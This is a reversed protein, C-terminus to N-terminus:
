NEGGANKLIRNIANQIIDRGHILKFKDLIKLADKLYKLANDLDGRASYILGINGLDSAEGQKYGIEQDLKLADQHYKLANDLDGRASFILGINGLQDAEGQKHGIEKLTRLAGQHYKLANDLDGRARYVLGINGLQIAEGQKYGIEKHINLAGQYYKLANDLDGKDYYILGFNGLDSAEGQKYGIEKHINLADQYYKLANDLDGRARYIVGINGLDASEGQKYGIEKHINLAGQYYKLANDLDGRTKYILGINCLQDAEGQKYGIEKHINLAGQYYKLANGLDGRARYILGINGLDSAEGQKYGIEQNIKLGDQHYKLANDLDGKDAYILGINGLASAKGELAEKKSVKKTLELIANYNELAIEIQGLSYYANGLNLLVAMKETPSLICGRLIDEFKQIAHSYKEDWVFLLAEMTRKKLEEDDSKPIGDLWYRAGTPRVNLQKAAVYLYGDTAISNLKQVEDLKSDFCVTVTEQDRWGPKEISLQENIYRQAFLIYFDFDNDSKKIGYVIIVPLRCGEYYKLHKTEMIHCFKDQSRKRKETAKIQLWVVNNTVEEGEVIEIEIDIGVDPDKDRVIWAKPLKNRLALRSEYELQVEKSRKM